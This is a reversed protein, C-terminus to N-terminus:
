SAGRDFVYLLAILDIQEFKRHRAPVRAVATTIQSRSMQDNRAIRLRPQFVDAAIAHHKLISVFDPKINRRALVAFDMIFLRHSRSFRERYRHNKTLVRQQEDGRGLGNGEADVFIVPGSPNQTLRDFDHFPRQGPEMKGGCRFYRDFSFDSWSFREGFPWKPFPRAVIRAGAAGLWKHSDLRQVIAIIRNDATGRWEFRGDM